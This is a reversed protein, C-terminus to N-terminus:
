MFNTIDDEAVVEPENSMPDGERVRDENDIYDDGDNDEKDTPIMSGIGGNRTSPTITTEDPGFSILQFSTPKYPQYRSGDRMDYACPKDLRAGRGARRFDTRGGPNYEDSSIYYIPNSWSDVIVYEDEQATMTNPPVGAEQLIERRRGDSPNTEKIWIQDGQRKMVLNDQDPEYPTKAKMTLAIYLLQPNYSEPYKDFDQHYQVIAMELQGILAATGAVKARRMNERVNPVLIVSLIGIIAVVVLLEVLTFGNKKM